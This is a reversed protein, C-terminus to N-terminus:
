QKKWEGKPEPESLIHEKPKIWSRGRTLLEPTAAFLTPYPKQSYDLSNNLPFPPSGAYTEVAGGAEQLLLWAAALDWLKPTTEFGLVAAGRAVACFSYAASGLIRPKYPVSVSYHRHTRGCCVFFAVPQDPDPPKVRIPEGNLFAGGNIQATYLEDLLPFYLAAIEPLGNELRAISVGWHHLGLSFNTTGDLPDVVWTPGSAGAPLSTGKEESILLDDPYAARIATAILQDAALDAETVVTQDAKLSVQSGDQDYYELLLQGTQHALDSAFQLLSVM